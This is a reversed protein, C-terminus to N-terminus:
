VSSMWSGPHCQVGIPLGTESRDIPVATAPLGPATALGAWVLPADLYPYEKGDIEIRRAKSHDHPFAPTPTVPCVLVDWERFLASWQQQLRARAMRAAIWDRHSLVTGRIREAALSNDGPALTEASRRAEDYLGTPLNAGWRSLLLRMYFRASEPLDPLLPSDHAVKVDAGALRESLRNLTTRVAPATPMLPHTDIVLVRFSKLNDHRAPRLALRYGIGEREEDPGAVLDLALALDAATRAMPGVVSLDDDRQLAPFPPPTHGRSPVLDLTPKHAYIGCFHAPVRLSGGIDSGFSLPGFGAALAAASGGSSGGPTRGLDWPNNTTGYIDNYSQIDGLNLPVNTKGLIVAGASKVRSVLVADEKPVFDKFQPIGWTTPLGAVNFSEKITIPLGLLPRREGRALAIDAAKAAERAREFDRVVVANLHQDLAAIRAITHDALELASIRRAQLVESLQTISRYDWESAAISPANQAFAGRTGASIAGSAAMAGAAILLERRAQDTM